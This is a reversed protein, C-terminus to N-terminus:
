FTSSLEGSIGGATVSILRKRIRLKMWKSHQFLNQLWKMHCLRPNMRWGFIKPLILQTKSKLLFIPTTERGHEMLQMQSLAMKICINIQFLSIPTFSSTKAGSTNLYFEMKSLKTGTWGSLQPITIMQLQMEGCVTDMQTTDIQVVIIILLDQKSSLTFPRM